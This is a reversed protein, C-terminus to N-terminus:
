AAAHDRGRWARKLRTLDLYRNRRTSGNTDDVAEECLREYHSLYYTSGGAPSLVFDVVRPIETSNVVINERLLTAYGEAVVIVSYRGPLLIRWYEGRITSRAPHLREEIFVCANSIGEGSLEDSVVGRVGMNAMRLYSLLPRRNAQWYDPLHRESPYKCCSIELTTEMCSAEIYNFDQMGGKVTYWDAGNTIGYEFDTFSNDCKHSNHMTPHSYSYTMALFRFVDDDPSTNYMSAGTRLRKRKVGRPLNDYPYNAVLAGGHFNASLVFQREQMWAMVAQTEMQRPPYSNDEFFDPFNRNLDVRNSNGRGKVGRCDGEVSSEFGDPNMSILIHLRMSDLIETVNRHLRYRSALYNAFHLLLERGVAENGHINGVYKVEPRGLVHRDQVGAISMVWLERGEASRGITYLRTIDPYAQNIERLVREVEDYHHYTFDVRIASTHLVCTLAVLLAWRCIRMNM